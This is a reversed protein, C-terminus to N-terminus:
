WLQKLGYVPPNREIRGNRDLRQLTQTLKKKSIGGIRELLESYRATARRAGHGRRGVM